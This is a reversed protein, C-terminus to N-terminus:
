ALDVTVPIPDSDCEIQSPLPAFKYELRGAARSSCRLWWQGLAVLRPLFLVYEMPIMVLISVRFGLFIKKTM